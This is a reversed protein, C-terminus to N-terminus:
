RKTKIRRRRLPNARIKRLRFTRQLAFFRHFDAPDTPLLYACLASFFLCFTNNEWPDRLYACIGHPTSKDFFVLGWH